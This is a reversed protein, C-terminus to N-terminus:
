IVPVSTMMSPPMSAPGSRCQTLVAFYLRCAGDYALVGSEARTETMMEAVIQKFEALDGLEIKPFRAV